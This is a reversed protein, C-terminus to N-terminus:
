QKVLERLYRIEDRKTPLTGELKRSLVQKLIKKYRPGPSIGEREIDHGRIRLKVGNYDTFFDKIRRRATVSKTKAM